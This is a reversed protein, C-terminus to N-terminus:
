NNIRKVALNKLEYLVDTIKVHQPCSEQCQYCTLCVWLMRAGMAVETLGSGLCYMIQHPLLGLAAEPREYNKVVPCCSTCTQCGYCCAYRSDGGKPFDEPVPGDQLFLPQGSGMLADFEGALAKQTKQIPAAYIEEPIERRNLGRVLSFPSLMWPEVGREQILDERAAMWLDKLDIGAPCVATCRDCNTCLYVGECIADFGKPGLTKGDAMRKLQYMKEAPLIFPNERAEAAMMASCTHSCTGCQTCADLAIARRTVMNARHTTERDMVANVLLNVPTAIIHFLKTFPLSALGLFCALWHLYWLFTVAGARDLGLAVPRLLRALGYGAFAWQNSAHCDACYMANLERGRALVEADFPPAADQSVLGFSKVWLSELARVDAKDDPAAYEAVMSQFESRSTMKLGELAFGSLMIVALIALAYVDSPHSKLRPVKLVFRRYAAIGLGSMVMAGFLDRLFLFPNLTPYYGRFLSTTVLQDLAHMGLLLMFGWYLLLHMLWRLRDEKLSRIQFIGDFILVKILIRLKCSFVAAFVGRFAASLRTSLAVGRAELGIDRAV